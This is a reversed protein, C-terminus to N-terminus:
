TRWPCQMSSSIKSDRIDSFTKGEGKRTPFLKLLQVFMMWEHLNWYAQPHTQFWSQKYENSQAKHREGIGKSIDVFQFTEKGRTSQFKTIVRM